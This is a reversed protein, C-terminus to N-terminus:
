ESPEADIRIVVITRAMMDARHRGQHDFLGLMAVPPLLWKIANRILARLLDPRPMAGSATDTNSSVVECGAIMKGPTRGTRWEGITGIVMGVVLTTVSVPWAWGAIIAAPSLGQFFELGLLTSAMWWSLVGDIAAALMRRVPECLATGVPITVVADKPDPRLVLVLAVGMTILLATSLVRLDNPTVPGLSRAPGHYLVRGTSASFERAEHTRKAASSEFSASGASGGDLRSWAMVVRGQSELSTVAIPLSVDDFSAIRAPVRESLEYVEVRGEALPQIWLLSGACELAMGRAPDGALAPGVALRRSNWTWAA